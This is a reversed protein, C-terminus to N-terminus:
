EVIHARACARVCVCMIELYLVQRFLQTREKYNSSNNKRLILIFFNINNVIINWQSLLICFWENFLIYNKISIYYDYTIMFPQTYIWSWISKRISKYPVMYSRTVICSWIHDHMISHIITYFWAHYYVTIDLNTYHGRIITYLITCSWTLDFSMCSWPIKVCSWIHGRIVMKGPYNCNCIYFIKRKYTLLTNRPFIVLFDIEIVERSNSKTTQFILAQLTKDHCHIELIMVSCWHLYHSKQEIESITQFALEYFVNSKFYM